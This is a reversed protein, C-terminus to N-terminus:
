QTEMSTVSTPGFRDFAISGQAVTLDIRGPLSRGMLPSNYSKGHLTARDVVWHANPAVLVLEAREGEKLRPAPFGLVSAPGSTLAAVARALPVQHERVLWLLLGFCVALGVAGPEAESFECDKQLSSQPRHDSVVADISGDALGRRLAEVDKM